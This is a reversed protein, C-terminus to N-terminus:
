TWKGAVERREPRALRREDFAALSIRALRGRVPSRSDAVGYYQLPARSDCDLLLRIPGRDHVSDGFPAM